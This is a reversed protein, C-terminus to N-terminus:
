PAQDWDEIRIGAVRRFENVNHTVLTLGNELAIAAIMLDNPGIPTGARVLASRIEGYRRASSDDFPLTVFGSFFQSLKQLNDAPKSSRLAGFILEAKVVSCLVIDGASRAALNAAVAPRSSRLHMICTNTDLLHTM